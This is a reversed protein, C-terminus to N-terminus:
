RHQPHRARAHHRRLRDRHVLGGGGCFHLGPDRGHALGPLAPRHGGEGRHLSAPLVADVPRHHDRDVGITMYLYGSQSWASPKPPTATRVIAETWQPAALVGAVIYAIYFFSAILFVKEVSKYSGKVVILWVLAACVPVTIYRSAHFLELSSAIGAFESLINGFNIVILALMMLFTVRLGYEERILDSLGKGTVAGMRSAMEQVVILAITTPIM